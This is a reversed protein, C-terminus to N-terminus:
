TLVCLPEGGGNLVTMCARLLYGGSWDDGLVCFTAYPGVFGGFTGFGAYARGCFYAEVGSSTKCVAAGPYFDTAGTSAGVGYCPGTGVCARPATTPTCTTAAEAASPVLSLGLLLFAVPLIRLKM